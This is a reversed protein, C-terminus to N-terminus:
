SKGLRPSPPLTLCRRGASGRVRLAPPLYVPLKRAGRKAKKRVGAWQSFRGTPHSLEAASPSPDKLILCLATLSVAACVNVRGLGDVSDALGRTRSSASSGSVRGTGKSSFGRSFRNARPTQAADQDPHWLLHHLRQLRGAALAHFQAAAARSETDLARLPGDPAKPAVQGSGSLDALKDLLRAVLQPPFPSGGTPVTSSGTPRCSSDGARPKPLPAPFVRLLGCLQRGGRMGRAPGKRQRSPLPRFVSVGASRVLKGQSTM